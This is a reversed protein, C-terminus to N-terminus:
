DQGNKKFDGQAESDAKPHRPRPTIKRWGHRHLLDYVTSSFVERGIKAEYAQKVSSVELIGGAIAEEGFTEKLWSQEEELTMYAHFRGGKGKLELSAEGFSRWQSHLNRITGLRLGTRNAITQADDKFRARFYIAQIRRMEEKTRAEKLLGEMKKAVNESFNYRWKNM